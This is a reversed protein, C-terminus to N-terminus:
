VLRKYTGRNDVFELFGKDRLKELGARISADIEQVHPRREILPQKRAYVDQLTFRTVSMPAIVLEWLERQFGRLSHSDGDEERTAVNTPHPSQGSECNDLLRVIVDDVSDILPRALKQLRVFTTEEIEITM